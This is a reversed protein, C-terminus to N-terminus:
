ICVHREQFLTFLLINELGKLPKLGVYIEGVTMESDEAAKHSTTNQLM